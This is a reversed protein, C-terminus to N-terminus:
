KTAAAQGTKALQFANGALDDVFQIDRYEFHEVLAAPDDLATSNYRDIQIPLGLSEDIKIITTEIETTGSQGIQEVRFIRSRFGAERDSVIERCSLQETRGLGDLLQDICNLLGMETIPHRSTKMVRPSHPDLRLVGLLRKAGGLRVLIQGDNAGAVYVARQGSAPWELHVALPQSQITAQIEEPELLEDDVREQRIFRTRYSGHQRLHSQGRRLITSLNERVAQGASSADSGAVDPSDTKGPRLECGGVARGRLKSGSCSNPKSVWTGAALSGVICLALLGGVLASPFRKRTGCVRRSGSHLAQHITYGSAILLSIIM